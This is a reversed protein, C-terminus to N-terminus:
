GVSLRGVADVKRGFNSHLYRETSTISAHGLLEQTTKLDAGSRLLATAFGHRFSHPSIRKTLGARAVLRKVTYDVARATLPGKRFPYHKGSTRFLPAVPDPEAGHEQQVYRGLVGADKGDAVPVLRWVPKDGRQKLTQVRLCLQGQVQCLDGVRLGCVEGKRLGAALAILLALVRTGTCSRRDPLGKLARLEDAEVPETPRVSM